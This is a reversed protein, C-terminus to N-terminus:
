DVTISLGARFNDAFGRNAIGGNTASGVRSRQGPRLPASNSVADLSQSRALPAVRLLRKRRRNHGRYDEHM